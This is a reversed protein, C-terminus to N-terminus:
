LFPSFFWKTEPRIRIPVMEPFRPLSNDYDKWSCVFFQDGDDLESWSYNPREDSIEKDDKVEGFFRLYFEDKAYENWCWCGDDRGYLWFDWMIQALQDEKSDTFSVYDEPSEIFNTPVPCIYEGKKNKPRSKRVVEIVRNWIMALAEFAEDESRFLGGLAPITWVWQFGNVPEYPVTSISESDIKRPKKCKLSPREIVSEITILNYKSLDETITEPTTSVIETTIAGDAM